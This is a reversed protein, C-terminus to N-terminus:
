HIILMRLRPPEISILNGSGLDSLKVSLDPTLKVYDHLSQKLYLNKPAWRDMKGDLRQLPIATAAEDQVLKEEKIKDIDQVSFLMNGPQIDGHVIGNRHLCALGRLAHLLIRQAIWKPYREVKGYMKPKNEPLEEVLSAATEGMAEFILCQHKGNPGEHQFADLLITVHQSDSDKSVVSSFKELISLETASSAAKAIMIKLAIYRPTSIHCLDSKLHQRLLIQFVLPGVRLQCSAVSDLIFWGWTKTHSQVEGPPLHRWSQSSSIRWSLIGRGM